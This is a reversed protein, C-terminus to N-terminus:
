EAKLLGWTVSLKGISSVAGPIGAGTILVDDYQAHSNWMRFGIKGWSYGAGEIEFMLDGHFYYSFKEGAVELRFDYWTDYEIEIKTRGLMERGAGDVPAAWGEAQQQGENRPWSDVRCLHYRTDNPDAKQWRFVIGADETSDLIRAKYEVVYDKWNEDWMHDSIVAMVGPQGAQPGQGDLVGDVISWTGQIVTWDDLQGADQFDYFLSWAPSSFMLTLLLTIGLLKKVKMRGFTCVPNNVFCNTFMAGDAALKDLNPTHMLEHEHVASYGM